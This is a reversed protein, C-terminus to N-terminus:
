AKRRLKRRSVCMFVGVVFIVPMVVSPLEPIKTEFQVEIAGATVNQTWQWSICTESSSSYISTLYQKQTTTDSAFSQSTWASSVNKKGMITRGIDSADTRIWFAFLNGTSSDLSITPSIDGVDQPITPDLDLGSTFSTSATLNHAYMVHPKATGSENCSGYVVHVVKRSDVVVSPPALLMPGNQTGSGTQILVQSSWSTTYKRCAVNGGYTYIAWVQSGTGAPVISGKVAANAYGGAIMNDSHVWATVNGQSVSKFVSLNWPGSNTTKNSSMIWLYGSADKCIYAYKSAQNFASVTLTQEGAPLWAITHTGPNVTGNIVWLDKGPNTKDGVVYVANNASDYWISAFEVGNTKAFLRVGSLSWTQGGDTSYRYVTHSGDFYFSWQNTGDYFIKRQGPYSTADLGLLPLGSQVPWGRTGIPVSSALDQRGSWDTTEVVYDWSSSGSIQAALIGLELQRLDNAADLVAGPVVKWRGSGYSMLATSRIEGDLGKIEVVYDAGITKSPISMLYGSIQSLDSDIYIRLVDEGTKRAPTFIGGGGGGGGSPKTVIMPVYSGGCMQGVVSVYFYSSDTSNVAGVADMDVNENGVPTSDVDASTRGAWDGFAGDIQITTPPAAVYAKAPEGVIAV